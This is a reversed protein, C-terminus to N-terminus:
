EGIVEQLKLYKNKHLIAAWNWTHLIFILVFLTKKSDIEKNFNTKEIACTNLFDKVSLMKTKSFRNEKELDSKHGNQINTLSKPSLYNVLNILASECMFAENETLGWKIIFEPQCKLTSLKKFKNNLNNISEIRQENSLDSKEIHKLAENQAEKHNWVRSGCGKGIYFPTNTDDCLAYVYYKKNKDQSLVKVIRKQEDKSLIDM